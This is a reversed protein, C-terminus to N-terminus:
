RFCFCLKAGGWLSNGDTLYTSVGNKWIVAKRDASGAVYVDVNSNWSKPSAGNKQITETEMASSQNAHQQM